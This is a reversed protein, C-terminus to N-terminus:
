LNTQFIGKLLSEINDTNGQKVSSERLKAMDELEKQNVSGYAIPYIRVGSNELIQSVEKFKFGSTVQGDTLVLLYFRGRPNLEKQKMLESLAVMIGDYMATDGDAILRDVAALFKQHQLTDFPALKVRTVPRDSFTVLGVYNGPNIVGSAIRLGKKVQQMPEGDMSGSTDIVTMMYVTRGADKQLKWYSQGSLLVEGDPIPPLGDSNLYDIEVFGQEEALKKIPASSAFQGFKQLAEKEEPSNWDFGVLPNNHPIGFPVFVTKEFGPVKKLEQYNQYELPFAQLKDKDRIFIEKLDLTTTTTILVRDQFDKFVSNVQPSELDAITLPEGDEHHGAGRWFVTYLLNLATSSAYPNPYGISIKGSVIADLLRDFTLEGNVALQQYTENNVVLGGVNPVLRNVVYNTNVGQSKLMSVWLDNSPSYGVPEITQSALLRAATGSAIKRVGVQITKGSNTTQKEKNFANAVEVLWRENRKKNNAKESSSWVEIYLNDSSSSPQAAYLPFDDINPLPETIGDTAYSAAVADPILLTEQSIKPLVKSELVELAGDFSNITQPKEPLTTNTCASMIAALCLGCIFWKIFRSIPKISM